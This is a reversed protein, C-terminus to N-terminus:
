TSVGPGVALTFTPLCESHNMPKLELKVGFVRFSDNTRRNLAALAGLHEHEFETAIWISTTAQLGAAYTLLQGFHDHDSRGLQNEIVVLSDNNKRDVCLIDAFFSDVPTERAILELKTGLIEDLLELNKVLWSSFDEDERRWIEHADVVKM